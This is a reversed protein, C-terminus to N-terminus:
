RGAGGEGVVVFPAWFSPHTADPRTKDEIVSLMGRRLAEARGIAPNQKLEVFTRTTLLVAADSDVAWHSVLLARAGAYFFARALGSLAEDSTTDAAGATNCASLVVWDANLKLQTIESATLLGDDAETPVQPPTLILAPEALFGTARKTESALLGHTAFYVIQYRDLPTTRVTTETARERLQIKSEPVGLSQAVCKLEFATEPLPCQAMLVDVRAVNGKFFNQMPARTVGRHVSPLGISAIPQAVSGPAGPCASPLPPRGCGANGQLAPDGFGIFLEPAGSGETLKRLASLSSVSPLVTIANEIGLWSVGSYGDATRPVHQSPSETVLVGLPLTALPGSPVILLRKGTIEDKISGFLAEYLEHAKGLDFPLLGSKGPEAGVLARCRTYGKEDDWTVPDLGCRLAAVRETLAKTGIDSKVWRADSKTVVWIFTEEPTPKWEPTDLILILAEDSGLQAQVGEVSLPATSVLAAYDPFEAKLREDIEAIRTDIAALRAVNAAEAQPDRKDPAQAVATSRAGDRQQWETVLDQRERVLAALRPDGKAGRAAMQQLSQAAESSQAWQATLFMEARLKADPIRQNSALRYAVKVLGWFRHSKQEAESQQKGTLAQGAALSGRRARNVIVGASRRWFHAARAWDRQVFYLLALNDLATGVSPHDPGLAKEFISVTRKYLPEAEAYRGQSDYLAALNNLSTGVLPHDPGLAKERIRPIRKYLPEAEAYRGQAQYLVALNSLSTAVQPHDPGLAKEYIALSRRYLPGAEAYRGQARYLGALNNLSSAVVPHDPGLAKETIAVDRKYLPEAEAYRGQASYLEALNNLSTGVQPHDPGLAKESIALSRKLLPEAEIYRGQALYLAGLNNLSTAVDLHGPGFAKERVALARKQLPEAETYRGQASYLEALNNLAAAVNPHGPSLANEDIKLARKFLPEAEAYRGQAQYIYALWSIAAAFETREEGYKKRALTIWREAIPIATAYQGRDFLQRVLAHLLALDDGGQSQARTAGVAVAHALLVSLVIACSVRQVAMAGREAISFGFAYHARVIYSRCPCLHASAVSRLSKKLSIRNGRRCPCAVDSPITLGLAKATKINIVLEFKMQQVVPLGGAKEGKLIRGSYVGAQLAADAFSTGYSL